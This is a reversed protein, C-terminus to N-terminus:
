KIKEEWVKLKIQEAIKLREGCLLTDWVDTDTDNYLPFHDNTEYYDGVKVVRIGGFKFNMDEVKFVQGREDGFIEDYVDGLLENARDNTSETIEAKYQNIWDIIFILEELYLNEAYYYANEGDDSCEVFITDGSISINDMTMGRLAPTDSYGYVNISGGFHELEKTLKSKVETTFAELNRKIVEM